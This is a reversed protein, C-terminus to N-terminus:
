AVNKCILNLQKLRIKENGEALKLRADKVLLDLTKGSTNPHKAVYYRVKYDRDRALKELYEAKLNPNRAIYRGFWRSSKYLLELVNIPTQPHLIISKGLERNGWYHRSKWPKALRDIFSVPIKRKTEIISVLTKIPIEEALNPKELVFLHFVINDMLENPFEAGLDLLVETPTNPNMAVKQRVLSDENLALERLIDAPTNENAATELESM